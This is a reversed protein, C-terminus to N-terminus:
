LYVAIALLTSLMAIGGYIYVKQYQRQFVKYALIVSSVITPSMLLVYFESVLKFLAPLIIVGATLIFLSSAAYPAWAVPSQLGIQRDGPTHLFDKTISGAIHPLTVSLGFLLTKFSIPASFPFLLFIMSASLIARIISELKMFIVILGVCAVIVFLIAQHIQLFLACGIGLCLAVTGMLYVQRTTFVGQPIPRQTHVIRDSAEDRADDFFFIATSLFLFSTIAFFTDMTFGISKLSLITVIGVIQGTHRLRLLTVFGKVQLM